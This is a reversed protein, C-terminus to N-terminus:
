QKLGSIWMSKCQKVQNLHMVDNNSYPLSHSEGIVYIHNTYNLTANTQYHLLLNHLLVWYGRAAKHSALPIDQVIKTSEIYRASSVYDSNLYALVALYVGDELGQNDPDLMYSTIYYKIGGEWHGLLCELRGLATNCKLLQPDIQLAEQLSIAAESFLGSDIQASGLNLLFYQNNPNKDVAVKAHYLGEELLGMEILVGSVNSHGSSFEPAIILAKQYYPLAEKYCGQNALLTGIADWISFGQPDLFLAKYFVELARDYIKLESLLNGYNFYLQANPNVDLAKVYTNEAEKLEGYYRLLLGLNNYADAYRPKLYIALQFSEKAGIFDGLAALTNGLNFHAEAFDKKVLLARKIYNKSQELNKENFYCVGLLHLADFHLPKTCLIKKYSVKAAPIDGAQHASIAHSFLANVNM